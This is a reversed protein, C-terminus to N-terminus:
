ALQRDEDGLELDFPYAGLGLELSDLGVRLVRAGLM